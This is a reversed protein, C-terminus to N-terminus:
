YIGNLFLSSSYGSVGSLGGGGFYARQFRSGNWIKRKERGLTGWRCVTDHFTQRILDRLHHASGGIGFNDGECMGEDKADERRVKEM